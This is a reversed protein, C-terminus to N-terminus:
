IIKIDKRNVEKYSWNKKFSMMHLHNGQSVNVYLKTLRLKVLWKMKVIVIENCIFAFYAHFLFIKRFRWKTYNPFLITTIQSIFLHSPYNNQKLSANIRTQRKTRLCHSTQKTYYYYPINIILAHIHSNKTQHLWVVISKKSILLSFTFLHKHTLLKLRLIKNSMFFCFFLLFCVQFSIFHFNILTPEM